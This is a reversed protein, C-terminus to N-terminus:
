GAEVRASALTLRALEKEDPEAGVGLTDPATMCGPASLILEPQSLDKKYFRASPFVDAPYTFNELTALALCHGGGVASELMGGVWCPVANDRCLDHIKVAVTLGGVRGPKLNMYGCARTQIAQRARDLSTISEDLCVPTAISRALTAHDILDDHALPQEIMALNYRDLKKFM